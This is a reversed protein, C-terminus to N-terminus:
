GQKARTEEPRGWREVTRYGPVQDLRDGVIATVQDRGLGIGDPGTADWSAELHEFWRPPNKLVLNPVDTRFDSARILRISIM